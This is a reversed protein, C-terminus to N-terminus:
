EEQLLLTAAIRAICIHEDLLLTFDFAHQLAEIRNVTMKSGGTVVALEISALCSIFLSFM